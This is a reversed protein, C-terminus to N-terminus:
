SMVAGAHSKLIRRNRTRRTELSSYRCITNYERMSDHPDYARKVGGLIHHRESLDNQVSLLEPNPVLSLVLNLDRLATLPTAHDLRVAILHGVTSLVTQLAIGISRFVFLLVLCHM